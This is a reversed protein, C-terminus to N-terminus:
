RPYPFAAPRLSVAGSATINRATTALARDDVLALALAAGIAAKSGAAKGSATTTVSAHQAALVSVSGAVTQVGGSGLRATTTNTILSLALAPTLSVGGASGAEATTVSAYTGRASLTLDGAGGLAAGDAIEAVSRNALINLAVSAGIGVSAGSAGAGVPLAEATARMRNDSLVSVAGTGTVTVSGGQLRAVSQTDVLNLALSGALGVKSAGAGSSAKALYVDERLATSAPDAMFGAVDRKLASLALGGVSHAAVGLTADNRAKVVNVAVAAGIGIQAAPPTEGSADAAGVADGIAEIQGDTNNIAALTLVGGATIVVGDPIAAIVSANQVNIGVAAAVSVKGESTSASRADSMLLRLLAQRASITM